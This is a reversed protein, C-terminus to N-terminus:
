PITHLSLRMSFVDDMCCMIQAVDLEVDVDLFLYLFCSRRDLVDCTVSEFHCRAQAIHGRNSLYTNHSNRM